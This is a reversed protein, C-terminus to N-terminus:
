FSSYMKTKWVETKMDTERWDRCYIKLRYMAVLAQDQILSVASEWHRLIDMENVRELITDFYLDLLQFTTLSLCPHSLQSLSGRQCGSCETQFTAHMINMIERAYFFQFYAELLTVTDM